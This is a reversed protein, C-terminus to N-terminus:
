ELRCVWPFKVPRSFTNLGFKQIVIKANMNMKKKKNITDILYEIGLDVMANAMNSEAAKITLAKTPCPNLSSTKRFLWKPNFFVKMKCNCSNDNTPAM